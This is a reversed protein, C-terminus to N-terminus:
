TPPWRARAIPTNSRPRTSPCMATWLIAPERWGTKENPARRQALYIRAMAGMAAVCTFLLMADTKALRAEVGLLVSSAMMLAALLAARGGVFALAAWYTLLVAGTAGFLSPLRYLWITTRAHPIGLAEGARVAAAQLWYIGVPKKYRVEDQFHIDVYNGSEIMQKSAQAFRAEDRDVPPIQFFGPLFALLAFLVLLLAARRHSACAYDLAASLGRAPVIAQRADNATTTM